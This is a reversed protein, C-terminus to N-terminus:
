RGGVTDPSLSSCSGCDCAGECPVPFTFSERPPHCSLLCASIERNVEWHRSCGTGAALRGAGPLLRCVIGSRHRVIGARAAPLPRNARPRRLQRTMRRPHQRSGDSRLKQTGAGLRPPGNVNRGRPRTQWTIRTASASVPLDEPPQAQSRPSGRVRPDAALPLRARCRADRSYGAGTRFVATLEHRLTRRTPWMSRIISRGLSVGSPRSSRWGLPRPARRWTLTAAAYYASPGGWAEWSTTAAPFAM